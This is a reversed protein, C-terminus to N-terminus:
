SRKLKLEKGVQWAQALRAGVEYYDRQFMSFLIPKIKGLDPKGDSIVSDDIYTEVIEGIFIDHKPFDVTRALRCEMNIPCERIMPATGLEGYFTDFVSSKDTNTGTVLGCYDTEKVLDISPINVSFTGNERIGANSYHMKHMGLSIHEFDMIGVHAITIFNARGNVNAGVITTPMPYLYNQVGVKQKTM